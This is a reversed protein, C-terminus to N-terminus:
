GRLAGRTQILGVLVLLVGTAVSLDAVNFTIWHNATIFDVVGRGQYLVSGDLGNGIIGGITVGAGIGLFRNRSRGAAVLLGGTCIALIPYLWWTTRTVFSFSTAPDFILQLGLQGVVNVLRGTLHTSAWWKTTVDVAVVAAACVLTRWGNRSIRGTTRVLSM